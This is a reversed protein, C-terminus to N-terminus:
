GRGCERKKDPFTASMTRQGGPTSVSSSSLLTSSQSSSVMSNKILSSTMGKPSRYDGVCTVEWEFWDLVNYREKGSASTRRRQCAMRKQTSPPSLLRTMSRLVVVVGCIEPRVCGANLKTLKWARRTSWCGCFLSLLKEVIKTQCGVVGVWIKREPVQYKAFSGQKKNGGIPSKWESRLVRVPCKDAATIRKKKMLMNLHYWLAVCSAM